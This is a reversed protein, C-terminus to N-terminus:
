FGETKSISIRFVASWILDQYVAKMIKASCYSKRCSSSTYEIMDQMLRLKMPM